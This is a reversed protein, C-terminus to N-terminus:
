GGSADKTAVADTVADAQADGGGTGADAPTVDERPSTVVRQRNYDKDSFKDWALTAVSVSTATKAGILRGFAGDIPVSDADTSVFATVPQNPDFGIAYFRGVQLPIALPGSTAWGECVDVAIQVDAVKQFASDKGTAEQVALTVRTQPLDARLYIDVRDLTRPTAIEYVNVRGLASAAKAAPANPGFEDSVPGADMTTDDAVTGGDVEPCQIAPHEGDADAAGDAEASDAGKCGGAVAIAGVALPALACAVRWLRSRRAPPHVAQALGLRVPTEARADVGGGRFAAGTVLSM